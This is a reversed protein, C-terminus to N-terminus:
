RRVGKSVVLVVKMGQRLVTGFNPKQSIVRRKKAWKSYSYRVSIRCHAKSLLTKAQALLLGRAEQVNCLGRKNLFVAVTKRNTNATVLDIRRDGNLDAAAIRNADGSSGARYYVDTAEFTGNERNLLVSVTGANDNAIALDRDGDGNLDGIALSVYVHGVDYNRTPLFDGDGKNSVVSVVSEYLRVGEDEEEGTEDNTAVALDPKADATLDGVAVDDPEIATKYSRTDAFTGEGQNLAVDVSDAGSNAIALDSKGDANFDASALASGFLKLPPAPTPRFGGVGDGLLLVVGKRTAVAVDLKKDGDLDTLVLPGGVTTMDRKPRFTGDGRNLLVSIKKDSAAVLDPKTDNDVDGLELWGPHPGVQYNRKPRFRGDGRNLLVSVTSSGASATAVDPRRDGNLDRLALATPHAGTEYKTQSQFSPVSAASTGATSRGQAGACAIAAVAFCMLAVAYRPRLRADSTTPPTM